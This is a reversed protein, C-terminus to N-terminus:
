YTSFWCISAHAPQSPFFVPLCSPPLLRPSSGPPRSPPRGAPVLAAPEVERGVDAAPAAAFLFVEVRSVSDESYGSSRAPGRRAACQGLARPAAAAAGTQQCGGGPLEARAAGLVQSRAGGPLSVGGQKCIPRCPRGGSERRGQQPTAQRHSQPDQDVPSAPTHTVAGQGGGVRSGGESVPVRRGRGARWRARGGGGGQM